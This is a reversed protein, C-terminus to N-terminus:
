NLTSQPSFLESPSPAPSDGWISVEQGVNLNHPRPQMDKMQQQEKFLSTTCILYCTTDGLLRTELFLSSIQISIIDLRCFFMDIKPFGSLMILLM